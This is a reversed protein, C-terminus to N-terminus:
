LVLGYNSAVVAQSIDLPDTPMRAAPTITSDTSITGLTGVLANRGDTLLLVVDAGAGTSSSLSPTSPPFTSLTAPATPSSTARLIVCCSRAKAGEEAQKVVSHYLTPLAVAIDHQAEEVM